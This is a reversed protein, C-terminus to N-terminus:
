STPWYLIKNMHLHVPMDWQPESRWSDARMDYAICNIMPKFDGFQEAFWGGHCVVTNEDFTTAAHKFLKHPMDAVSRWVSQRIDFLELSSLKENNMDPELLDSHRRVPRNDGGCVFITSNSIAGMQHSSRRSKMAPLESVTNSDADYKLFAASANCNSEFGGSIFLSISSLTTYEWLEMTTTGLNKYVDMWESGSLVKLNFPLSTTGSFLKNRLSVLVSGYSSCKQGNVAFSRPYLGNYQILDFNKFNYKEFNNGIGEPDDPRYHCCSVISNDHVTAETLSSPFGADCDHWVQEKDGLLFEKCRPPPVYGKPRSPCYGGFSIWRPANITRRVLDLVDKPVTHLLYETNKVNEMVWELSKTTLSAGVPTQVRKTEVDSDTLIKQQSM